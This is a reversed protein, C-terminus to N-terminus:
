ADEQGEQFMRLPREPPGEGVKGGGSLLFSDGSDGSGGNQGDISAQTLPPQPPQPPKEGERWITVNTGKAILHTEIKIGMARLFTEVRRVRSSLKRPTTPWLKDRDARDYASTLILLLDKWLGSFSGGRELLAVIGAAVPDDELAASVSTSQFKEYARMFTGKEWGLAAEGATVWAAFDAMRPKERIEVRGLNALAGSAATFLGDLIRPLVAELEARIKTEEKRASPSIPRLIVILARDLLDPKTVVDAIGNLMVPITVELIVEDADSFLERKSLGGGTSLRCIADSQWDKLEGANDFALVRNRSAAILLDGEDKPFSRLPAKSPDLIRKLFRSVTSKAAGQVGMLVLVIYPGSPHLAGVLWAKILLQGDDDANIFPDLLDLSGGKEPKPLPLIGRPRHFRVPPGRMVRHGTATIEVVEREPNALDVYIAEPTAAFRVHVPIIPGEFRAKGELTRTVEDLAQTSPAKGTLRYYQHSLWAKLIRSRVPIADSGVQAFSEGDPTQFLSIGSAIKLLTESQSDDRKVPGPLPQDAAIQRKVRIRREAVTEAAREKVPEDNGNM